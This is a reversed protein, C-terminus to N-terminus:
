KGRGISRRLRRLFNPALLIFSYKLIARAADSVTGAESIDMLRAAFSFLAQKKRKAVTISDASYRRQILQEPICSFTLGHRASRLYLEYDQAYRFPECYGGIEVVRTRRYAVTSAVIFNRKRLAAVIERGEIPGKISWTSNNSESRGEAFSYVFDASTAQFHAHIRALRDPTPVDDDDNRVVVDGTAIGLGVNLSKTLGLNSPNVHMKLRTDTAALESFHAVDANPNDVVIVIELPVETEQRFIDVVQRLDGGGTTCILVSLM